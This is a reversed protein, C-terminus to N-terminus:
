YGVLINCPMVVWFVDVEINVTAFVKLKV